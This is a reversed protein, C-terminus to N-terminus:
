FDAAISLSYRRPGNPTFAGNGSVNWGYTDFINDLNARVLVPTRGVKTRYRAGIGTVSRAPVELTNLRNATRSSTSEFRATLTLPEYWPVQWNLNALTRLAFFGVPRKGIVGTDVLEGSITSDLLTAGAVVSLGKAISGALSFEAGRNRVTGLQGFRSASDLNFYPKEIEFVGAILSLGPRLAYRFGVDMQRTRLAPPAENRNTANAPAVESEELGRTYGGYLALRKSLYAAATASFLIPDDRTEPLAGDPTDVQKRYRTKQVGLSIEGVEAWRLEYGAGFTQQRVKDRSKDGFELEPEPRPDKAGAVSEGLEVVASGGYRRDLARGRASFHVIHRRSSETFTRSARVEGSTSAFRNGSDAVIVRRGVAGDEDTDFLLDAFNSDVDISSRYLGAALEFGALRAKSVVGAGQMTANYAAWPQGFYEPREIREPLFDGNVFILPGREEDGAEIRGYFPQLSFSSSPQFRLSLGYSETNNRGGSDPVNSHMGTGVILGLRDGMLPVQGDLVADYGGYPGYSVAVSALARKGPRRLRYDAIGTPAPFPYGQASIGVHVSRQEVMRDTLHGQQDFYLGEIRVNGAAIPSFGRVNDPSYIGIQEGGISLGFADEADEVANDDTRQAVAPASVALAAASVFLSIQGRRM